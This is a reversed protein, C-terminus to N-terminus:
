GENYTDIWNKIKECYQSIAEMRQGVQGLLEQMQMSLELYSIYTPDKLGIFRTNVQQNMINANASLKEYAEQSYTIAKQAAEKSITIRAM